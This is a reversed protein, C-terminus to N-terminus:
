SLHKTQRQDHCSMCKSGDAIIGLNNQIIVQIKLKDYDKLKQKDEQRKIKLTEIKENLEQVQKQNNELEQQLQLQSLKEDISTIPTPTAM